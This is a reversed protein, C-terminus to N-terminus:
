HDWHDYIPKKQQHYPGCRSRGTSVCEKGGRREESRQADYDNNFYAWVTRGERSQAKMWEAWDELRERSYGGRYKGKTGHFRVYATTGVALRPSASGPM